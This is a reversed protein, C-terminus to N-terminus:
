IDPNKGFHIRKFIEQSCQFRNRFSKASSYELKSNKRFTIVFNGNIIYCAKLIEPYNAEYM